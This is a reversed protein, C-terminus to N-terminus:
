TMRTSEAFRKLISLAPHQEGKQAPLFNPSAPDAFGKIATFDEASAVKFGMSWDPFIREEITQCDLQIVSHHRNDKKIKKILTDVDRDNGELVQLFIGDGFLMMGTIKNAENNKRFHILMTELMGTQFYMSATSMYIIYKM